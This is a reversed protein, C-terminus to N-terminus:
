GEERHPVGGGGGVTITGVKVVACGDGVNAGVKVSIGGVIIGVGM